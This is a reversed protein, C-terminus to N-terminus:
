GPSSGAFYMCDDATAFQIVGRLKDIAESERQLMGEYLKDIIIQIEDGAKPLPSRVAYRQIRLYDAIAPNVGIYVYRASKRLRRTYTAQCM